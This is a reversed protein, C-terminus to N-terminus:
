ASACDTAAAALATTFKDWEPQWASPGSEGANNAADLDVLAVAAAVSINRARNHGAPVGAPVTAAARLLSQWRTGNEEQAQMLQLVLRAGRTDTTVAQRAMTVKSCEQRAAATIKGASNGGGCAVVALVAAVPLYRARM